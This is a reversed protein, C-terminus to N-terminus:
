GLAYWQPTNREPVHYAIGLAPRDALPDTRGARKEKDQRPESLDPARRSSRAGPHRRLVERDLGEGRAPDFDGTVVLAANNPAYYTRFFSQVDDLTAADLHALDGYFNHANYWNENAAMPLDIWPFGGYPQNLVNVKVENKM